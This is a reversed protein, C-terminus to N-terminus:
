GASMASAADRPPTGTEIMTELRALDDDMQRKPDRGFLTAVAHGAAGGPPNYTMRVSVRTAADGTRDFRIIGAQRIAAGDVTKWAVLAEPEFRTTEADWEVTAGAPGDVVWHTREGLAGRPGSARVERVHSMWQPFHEWDTFYAFVDAVPANVNITKQVDVASRGGSLGVLRGLDENTSGRAFLALGALGLTSGVADRRRM